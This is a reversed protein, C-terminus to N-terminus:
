CHFSSAHLLGNAALYAVGLNAAESYCGLFAAGGAGFEFLSYFSLVNEENDDEDHEIDAKVCDSDDEDQLIM